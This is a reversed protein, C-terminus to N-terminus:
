RGAAELDLLWRKRETGGSYAGIQGDARLLRHCPVVIVVPNAGLAEGAMRSAQRDDSARTVAGYHATEGYPVRAIAQLTRQRRAEVSSLDVHLEFTRRAGEFYEELQRRVSPMGDAAEEVDAGGGGPLARLVPDPPGGTFALRVLGREGAVALLPGLPSDLTAYSLRAPPAPASSTRAVEQGAAGRLARELEACDACTGELLLHVREVAFGDDGPDLRSSSCLHVDYLRRCALCCFHQHESDVESEYRLPGLRGFVKLLGAGVLEGLTNYVTARALGPLARSARERVEEATLHETRGGAFSELIARRQLTVRLGHRRLRDATHDEASM